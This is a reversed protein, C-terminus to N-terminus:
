DKKEKLSAWYENLEISAYFHSKGKRRLDWYLILGKVSDKRREIKKLNRKCATKSQHNKFNEKKFKTKEEEEWELVEKQEDLADQYKEEIEEPTLPAFKPKSYGAM